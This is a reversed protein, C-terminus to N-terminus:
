QWRQYHSQQKQLHRSWSRSCVSRRWGRSRALLSPRGTIKKAVSASNWSASGANPETHITTDVMTGTGAPTSSSAAATSAVAPTSSSAAATSAVAPAAAHPPVQLHCDFSGHPFKGGLKLHLRPCHGEHAYSANWSYIHSITKWRVHTYACMSRHSTM